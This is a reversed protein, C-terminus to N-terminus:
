YGKAAFAISAVSVRVGNIEKLCQWAAELTAGTTIVDDVILVHKGELAAREKVRFIGQVNEWRQYKRKKTQTATENIREMVGTALSVRSEEAIGMAFWESQNFGRTKLKNRHLPIPIILDYDLSFRDKLLEQTYIKGLYMALEKQEQYKINHLLRQVRGSKEFVFFSLADGFPIRGWFTRYLENEPRKHYNSKPLSVVCHTCIFKEHQLMLEGCAECRRPYILSMFDNILAM